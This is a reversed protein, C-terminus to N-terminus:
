LQISSVETVIVRKRDLPDALRHPPRVPTGLKAMARVLKASEMLLKRDVQPNEKLIKELNLKNPM